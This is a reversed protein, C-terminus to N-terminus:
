CGAVTTIRGVATRIATAQAVTLHKGSQAAVHGRLDALAACLGPHGSRGLIAVIADIKSTIATAQGGPTLHYGVVVGRLLALQEVAGRVHVTFSGTATNAPSATDSASCTVTTSAGVTNVPFTSLPARSCVVPRNGSVLDSASVTFPVSAGSPSTADVAFNAPLILSPPTTDRVRVNFSDDTRAGASDVAYCTVATVGLPFTSHSAPTCTIAIAGDEVDSATATFSVVAGAPGTAEVPSVSPLTLTPSHNADPCTLTLNLGTVAPPISLVDSVTESGQNGTCGAKAAHVVYYGAQVDWGYAGDGGTTQPNQRNAVSMIDSGNDVAAFPGGPSDSRYLTVTAGSVPHGNSLITGSPDIYIIFPAPNVVVGGPCDFHETLTLPGHVGSDAYAPLTATYTGPPNAVFTFVEHYAAGTYVNVGDATLTGTGGVCNTVTVLHTTSWHIVGVTVGGVVTTGNLNGVTTGPPTPHPVTLTLDRVGHHGNDVNVSVPGSVQIGGSGVPPFATAVFSGDPLALVSYHGDAGTQAQRCFGNVSNCLQVQGFAVPAGDDTTVAGTVSGTPLTGGHVAFRYRGDQTPSNANGSALSHAGGDLFAGPTGSGALELASGPVGTGAAFGARATNHDWLISDYNLEITFDGAVGGSLGSDDWLVLQFSNLPAHAPYEGVQIWDVCFYRQGGATMGAGYHVARGPGRTDIDSFFPAIIPINTTALNFPVYDSRPQEFTVDGNNNVFLSDYATGFFNIPFGISQAGTSGDDNGPFLTLECGDLPRIAHSYDYGDVPGTVTAEAPLAPITIAAMAAVIITVISGRNRATRAHSGM